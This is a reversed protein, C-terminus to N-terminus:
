RDMPNDLCSHQFPKVNGGGPSRGPILGIGGADGANAPPYKKVVSGGSIQLLEGINEKRRRGFWQYIKKEAVMRM